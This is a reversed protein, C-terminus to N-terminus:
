WSPYLMSEVWEKAAAKAEPSAWQVSASWFCQSCTAKLIHTTVLHVTGVGVGFQLAVKLTSAVNGYHGLHYLAIVAQEEVPMQANNSNNYFVEDDTSPLLAAMPAAYQEAPTPELDSDSDSDDSLSSSSWGSSSETDCSSTGSSSDSDSDEESELCELQEAEIQALFDVLFAWHLADAALQRDSLTPM